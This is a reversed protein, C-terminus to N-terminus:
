LNEFNETFIESEGFIEFIESIKSRVKSIPKRDFTIFRNGHNMKKLRKLIKLNIWFRLSSTGLVCRPRTLSRFTSTPQGCPTM